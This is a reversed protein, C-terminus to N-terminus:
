QLRINSIEYDFKQENYTKVRSEWHKLGYNKHRKWRLDDALDFMIAKDKNDSKRLIRGISQLVRIRSKSPHAFIMVHLNRINVGTSFVGVSAVIIADDHGETLRRIEERNDANVEGSVFYVPRDPALEKIKKYLVKGHKEVFQFLILTNKKQLLGLKIIFENRKPHTILWDIEEQYTLKKCDQAEADSYQLLLSRIDLPSITEDDMLEKTTVAHYVPGFLGELVLKNTKNDDASLTGTLGVRNPCNTLKEMIKTISQAKAIHVEDCMIAGFQDFYTKPQRFLSQWTSIYIPAENDKEKGGSIQHILSKDFDDDESSYDLFDAALQKVLSITPVLILIKDLSKMWERVILYQILSKGASTPALIIGRKNEIAYRVSDHQYDYPTIEEGKVRLDFNPHEFDYDISFAEDLNPDITYKVNYHKAFDKIKDILGVYLARNRTNFLHVFGDWQGTKFAPMFRYGPVRFKFYDDLEFLIGPDEVDVRIWVDSHKSLHM